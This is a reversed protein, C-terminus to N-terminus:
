FRKHLALTLMNWGTDKTHVIMVVIWTLYAIGRFDWTVLCPLCMLILHYRADLLLLALDAKQLVSLTLQTARTHISHEGGYPELGVNCSMSKLKKTWFGQIKTPWILIKIEDHRTSLNKTSNELVACDYDYNGSRRMAPACAKEDLPDTVQNFSHIVVFTFSM